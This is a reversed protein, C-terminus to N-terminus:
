DGTNEPAIPLVGTESALIVNGDKTITYRSPRLGNRDLVAGICKGNDLELVLVYGNPNIKLYDPSQQEKKLLNVPKYDFAIGKLALAIRVRYAASSRFYDYLKM